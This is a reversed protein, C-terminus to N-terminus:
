RKRAVDERLAREFRTQDASPLYTTATLMACAAHMFDRARRADEPTLNQALRVAQGLHAVIRDIDSAPTADILDSDRNSDTMQSQALDSIPTWKGDVVVAVVSMQRKGETEM